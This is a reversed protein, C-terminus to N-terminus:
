SSSPMQALHLACLIVLAAAVQSFDDVFGHLAENRYNLGFPSVLFSYLFRHWSPDLRGKLRGLLSGLQEYQGRTRGQQVRFVPEQDGLAFARLLAEIKPLAVSASAEFDGGQFHAIARAIAGAVPASVYPSRILMTRIQEESPAFRDLVRSLAEAVLPGRLSLQLLEIRALREDEREEDSTARYRPMGDAGLHVDPFINM